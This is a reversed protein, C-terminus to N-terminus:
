EQYVGNKFAGPKLITNSFFVGRQFSESIAEARAIFCQAIEPQPCVEQATQRFLALWRAFDSPEIQERLRMHAPMPRGEYSGTRLMLAGWFARMRALHEPWTASINKDFVPGLREDAQVKAYFAEVLEAILEATIDPHDPMRLSLTDHDAPTM